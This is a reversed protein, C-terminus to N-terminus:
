RFTQATNRLSSFETSYSADDAATKAAPLVAVVIFRSIITTCTHDHTPPLTPTMTSNHPWDLALAKVYFM